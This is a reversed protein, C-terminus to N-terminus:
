GGAGQQHGPQEGGCGHGARAGCRQPPADLGYGVGVRGFLLFFLCHLPWVLVPVYRVDAMPWRVRGPTCGHAPHAATPLTHLRPCPTCGHAMWCPRCPTCSAATAQCAVFVLTRASTRLGPRRLGPTRQCGTKLSEGYGWGETDTTGQNRGPNGRPLLIHFVNERVDANFRLHCKLLYPAAMMWRVAVRAKEPPLWLM